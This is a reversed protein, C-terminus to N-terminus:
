MSIAYQMVNWVHISADHGASVLFANDSTFCASSVARYHGEWVRLLVGTSRQAIFALVGHVLLM